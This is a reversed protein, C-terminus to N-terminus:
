MGYRLCDGVVVLWIVFVVGVLGCGCDGGVGVFCGCGIVWGGGVCGVCVWGFDDVVGDVGGVYCKWDFIRDVFIM